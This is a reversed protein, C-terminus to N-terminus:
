RRRKAPAKRQLEGTDPDYRWQTGDPTSYAKGDNPINYTKGNYLVPWVKNKAGGGGNDGPKNVGKGGLRVINDPNFGYRTAMDRYYGVQEGYQEKAVEY